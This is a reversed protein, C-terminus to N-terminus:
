RRPHEPPTPPAPTLIEDLRLGDEVVVHHV